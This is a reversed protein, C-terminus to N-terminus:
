GVRGPRRMRAAAGLTVLGGLLLPLGAPLPIPATAVEIEDVWFAEFAGSVGGPAVRDGHVIRFDTIPAASAFGVFTRGVNIDTDIAAGDASTTLGLIDSLLFSAGDVEFGIESADFPTTANNDQLGVLAIGRVPVVASIGLALPAGASGSVAGELFGAGTLGITASPGATGVVDLRLLAGVPNGSSGDAFVDAPGDLTAVAVAGVAARWAAADDFATVAAGAPLACAFAATSLGLSRFM